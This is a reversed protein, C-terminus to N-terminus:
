THVTDQNSSPPAGESPPSMRAAGTLSSGIINTQVNFFAFVSAAESQAHWSLRKPETAVGIM